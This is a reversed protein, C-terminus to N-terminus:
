KSCIINDDAYIAINRIVDSPLNSIYLLFLTPELIYGYPVGTNVINEQWFMGDLVERIYGNSLVFLICGSVLASIGYTFYWLKLLGM